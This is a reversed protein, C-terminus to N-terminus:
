EKVTIFNLNKCHRKIAEFDGANTTVVTVGERAASVAILCDLAIEQKVKATRKPSKGGAEQKREQALRYSIQGAQKWDERNPVILLKDREAQQWAGLHSNYESRNNASTMREFLVVSSAYLTKLPPIRDALKSIYISTDYVYKPM